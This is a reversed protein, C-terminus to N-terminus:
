LKVSLTIGLTRPSGVFAVNGFQGDIRIFNTFYSQDALNTGYLMLSLREDRTKLALQLDVIGYGNQRTARDQFVNFYTATQYRYDLRPTLRGIRGLDIRIEGGLAFALEPARPLRHGSQDVSATPANVDIAKLRDFESELWALNANLLVNGPLKAEAGLELGYLTAEGANEVSPFLASASPPVIQLQMDRYDYYFFAGRFSLADSLLDLRGGLEGSWLSEPRIPTTQSVTTNYGGAKYGRAGKLYAVFAGAPKWELVVRPSWGDWADDERFHGVDVGNLSEDFAFSRSEHSYRTGASFRLDLPLDVGVEGFVAVADTDVRAATRDDVLAPIIRPNLRQKAREHQFFGGVLWDFSEDGSSEARIEQTTSDSREAVDNTIFPLETGDLDLKESLDNSRFATISRIRFRELVTAVEVRAGAQESRAHPSRDLFVRRRDDPVTGGALVAPSGALPQALRPTLGRTGDDKSYDGGILISAHAGLSHLAQLRVAELSEGESGERRLVNRMYGDQQKHMGSLRFAGRGEHWPVNLAYRLRALEFSGYTLDAEAGLEPEPRRSRLHIVGGTSNRGPHLAQPGRLVDIRDIDFLDILAGASRPRYVDDVVVAISSEVGASVLDSGVGRLYPQALASNTSVVLGPVSGALDRSDRIGRRDLEAGELSESSTTTSDSSTGLDGHVVITELPESATSPRVPTTALIISGFSIAAARLGLALPSPFSPAPGEVGAVPQGRDGIGRFM